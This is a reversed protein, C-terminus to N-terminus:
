GRRNVSITSKGTGVSIETEVTKNDPGELRGDEAWRISGATDARVEIIGDIREMSGSSVQGESTGMITIVEWRKVPQSPEITLRQFDPPKKFTAHVEPQWDLTKYSNLGLSYPPIYVASSITTKFSQPTGSFLGKFFIKKGKYEAAFINVDKKEWTGRTNVNWSPSCLSKTELIDHMVLLSYRHFFFWRRILLVVGSIESYASSHDSHCYTVGPFRNYNILHSTQQLESRGGFYRGHIRHGGGNIGIINAHQTLSSYSPIVVPIVETDEISWSFSGSHYPKYWIQANWTHFEHKKPTLPTGCRFSFTTRRDRSRCIFLGNESRVSLPVSPSSGPKIDPNYALLTLPHINGGKADGCSSNKLMSLAEAQFRGSKERNAFFFMLLSLMYSPGAFSGINRPFNKLFPVRRGASWGSQELLMTTLILWQMNFHLWESIGDEPAGNLADRTNGAIWELWRVAEPTEGLLAVSACAFGFWFGQGHAEPANPYWYGYQLHTISSAYSSFWILRKKITDRQEETLMQYLWDYVVATEFMRMGTDRDNNWGMIEPVGHYGWFPKQCLSLTREIAEDLYRRNNLLLGTLVATVTRHGYTRDAGSEMEESMKALMMKGEASQHLRLEQLQEERLFLRPRFKVNSDVGKIPLYQRTDKQLSVSEIDKWRLREEDVPIELVIEQQGATYVEIGWSARICMNEMDEPSPVECWALGLYRQNLSVKFTPVTMQYRTHDFDFPGTPVTKLDPWSKLPLLLTKVPFTGPLTKLHMLYLGQKMTGRFILRNKGETYASFNNQLDHFTNDPWRCGIVAAYTDGTM